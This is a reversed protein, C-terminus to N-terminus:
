GELQRSLLEYAALAKPHQPNIRLAEDLAALAAPTNGQKELQEALTIYRQAAKRTNGQSEYLRAIRRHFEVWGPRLSVARELQSIARGPRGQAEHLAAAQAHCRAAEEAQQLGRLLGAMKELPGPDNPNLEHARQCLALEAQPDKQPPPAKEQVDGNYRSMTLTIGDVLWSEVADAAREAVERALIAEDGTFSQLVYAAADMRGPPRGIGFRVRAFDQTGLHQIVNRIGRQGGASGRERLRLTGLPLDLDDAIVIVRELDIKYFDVLGRVAEGSLNMYTQPKALLVRRGRIIASATIAKKETKDFRLDYRRALEDLVHWGVNHRTNEYKRGPNGLGVILYTESM